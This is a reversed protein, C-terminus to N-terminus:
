PEVVASVFFSQWENGSNMTPQHKPGLPLVLCEPYFLAVSLMLGWWLKVDCSISTVPLEQCYRSLNDVAGQGGTGNEWCTAPAPCVMHKKTETWSHYDALDLIVGKTPRCRSVVFQWGINLACLDQGQEEEDGRTFSFSQISVEQVRMQFLSWTALYYNFSKRSVEPYSHYCWILWERAVNEFTDCTTPM